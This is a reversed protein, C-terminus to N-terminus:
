DDEDETVICKLMKYKLKDAGFIKLASGAKLEKYNCGEAMLTALEEPALKDPPIVDKLRKFVREASFAIKDLNKVNSLALRSFCLAYAVFFVEYEPMKEFRLKKPKVKTFCNLKVLPLARKSGYVTMLYLVVEKLHMPAEPDILVQILADTARKQASTVLVLVCLKFVSEESSYLGWLVCEFVDDKKLARNLKDRDRNPLNKLVSLRRVEENPPLSDTYELPLVNDTDGRTLLKEALSAYYKVCADWPKLRVLYSLENQAREYRNCNILGLGLLFRINTDYPREKIIRELFDVAKEHELQELACSAMKYLDAVDCIPEALAKLYYYRSKDADNKAFYMSSLNAYAGLNDGIADLQKRTIEIGSDVDGLVFKLMALENLAEGYQPCGKPVSEFLREATVYDSIVISRKAEKITESYDTLEFPYAIKYASRGNLAEGFYDAIEKDLGDQSLYGDVAIKKHFYYGSLYLNDMYFFNVGLEEYAVGERGAPAKSLYYFWFRNSLEYLEMDAYIDAVDMITELDEEVDLARFLFGLAGVYDGAEIRRDALSRMRSTSQDSILIKVEANNASNEKTKKM